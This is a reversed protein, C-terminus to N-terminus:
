RLVRVAGVSGSSGVRPASRGSVTVPNRASLGVATSLGPAAVIPRSRTARASIEEVERRVAQLSIGDAQGSGRRSTPPSWRRSCRVPWTTGSRTWTSRTQQRREGTAHRYRPVQVVLWALWSACVGLVLASHLLNWVGAQDTALAGGAAIRIDHGTVAAVGSASAALGLVVGAGLLVVAVRRWRGAPLRGDPFLWVLVAILLLFIPWAEGLVVAVWGLPLTGRHIRYDLVAYGGFPAFAIFFIALLIWGIPNSPRRVALLTAVAVPPAMLAVTTVWDAVPGGPGVQHAVANTLIDLPVTMLGLGLTLAGFAVAAVPAVRRSGFVTSM